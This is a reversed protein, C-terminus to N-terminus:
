KIYESGVPPQLLKLLEYIFHWTTNEVFVSICNGDSLLLTINDIGVKDAKIKEIEPFEVKKILKYPYYLAIGNKLIILRENTIIWLYNPSKCYYIICEESPNLMIQKLVENQTVDSLQSWLFTNKVNLKARKYKAEITSIAVM